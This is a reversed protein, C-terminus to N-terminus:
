TNQPNIKFKTKSKLVGFIIQVLKRCVAGYAATATKGKAIMREYYDRCIPNFRAAAKAANWLMHKMLKNGNKAMRSRGEYKGSQIRRPYIGWFAKLSDATEFRNIDKMTVLATAATLSGIGPISVLIEAEEDNNECLLKEIMAKTKKLRQQLETLETKRQELVEVAMPATQYRVNHIQRKLVSAAKSIRHYENIWLALNERNPDHQVRYNELVQPSTLLLIRGAQAIRLADAQDTKTQVMSTAHKKIILPNLEFANLELSDLVKGIRKGYVGTSEYIIATKGADPLSEILQKIGEPSNVWTTVPLVIEGQKRHILCAVFDDKALDIGLIYDINEM